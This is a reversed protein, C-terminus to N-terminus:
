SNLNRGHLSLVAGAFVPDQLREVLHDRYRKRWQGKPDHRPLGTLISWPKGFPCAWSPKGTKPLGDGYGPLGIYVFTEGEHRWDTRGKGSVVPTHEANQPWLM